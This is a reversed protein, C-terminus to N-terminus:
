SHRQPVPRVVHRPAHFGTLGLLRGPCRTTGPAAPSSRPGRRRRYDLQPGRAAPSRIRRCDGAAPLCGRSTSLQGDAVSRVVQVVPLGDVGASASAPHVRSAAGTPAADVDQREVEGGRATYRGRRAARLGARRYLMQVDGTPCCRTSKPCFRTPHSRNVTWAPGPLSRTRWASTSSCPSSPGPRQAGGLGGIPEHQAAASPRSWGM